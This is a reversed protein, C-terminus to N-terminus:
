AEAGLTPNSAGSRRGAVPEAGPAPRPLDGPHTGLSANITRFLTEFRELANEDLEGVLAEPRELLYRAPVYRNFGTGTADEIRKVIRGEGQVEFAEVAAAGSRNVLDLYFPEAFLDELDAEETANIEALRVLGGREIMARGMSSAPFRGEQGQCDAILVLNRGPPLLAAFACVGGLGGVPVVTWRSDLSARGQAELYASLVTLYVHDSPGPVLLTDTGVPLARMLESGFSAQLPLRTDESHDFFTHSVRSGAGERDEVTRVGELETAVVMFPSHTSYIVQHSPALREEIFRLLDRQAAAHLGLGPEDLLLVTRRSRGAESLTALFSFFWTFGQSRENFNLTIRHRQNRIRIDIFPAGADGERGPDIDLDVSLLPNQSWYRMVEDTIENAAAELSAKRADYDGAGFEAVDVGAIRLLSLATRESPTLRGLGGNRLRAISIRGSIVSYEDFYLFGPLRRELTRGVAAVSVREGDPRPADLLSELEGGGDHAAAGPRLPPLAEGAAERAAGSGTESEAGPPAARVGDGELAIDWRLENDYRRSVAVRRSALVGPGHVEEVARVDEDELAFTATVPRVGPVRARDRGFRRRPYDRLPLFTEPHGTTLPNLRYLAELLSTKGSENKGVLCTVGERIDVDGSDGINKYERIRISELIM